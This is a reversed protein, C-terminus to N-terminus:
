DYVELSASKESEIIFYGKNPYPYVNVASGALETLSNCANAVVTVSETDSCGNADTGSVTYITNATPTVIIFTGTAGNSWQYNLAGNVFLSDSEGVCLTYVKATLSLTPNPNSTLTFSQSGVLM